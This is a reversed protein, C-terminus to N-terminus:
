LDGAAVSEHLRARKRHRVPEVDLELLELRDPVARADLHVDPRRV